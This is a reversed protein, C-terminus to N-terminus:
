ARSDGPYVPIYMRFATGHGVASEIEVRGKHRDIAKKVVALGLGTGRAKTTFFPTFIKEIVDPAIGSGTDSVSVRAYGGSLASEVTLEGGEPMVELANGLLNRIAQKMEEADISVEPNEQAYYTVVKVTEPVPYAAMIDELYDNIRVPKLILERTRAFGLIENIIGNAQQIESEIISLHKSIKADVEGRANLKAKIFYASNNIVALPNRIEHSVVSSMQGIAALREKKILEEHASKLERTRAEVRSELSRNLNELESKASLLEIRKRHISESMQLFSQALDGIEDDPMRLTPLSEFEGDGLMIAAERLTRIPRTLILSFVYGVAFIGLVLGALLHLTKEMMEDAPRYIIAVPKQIYVTWGLDKVGAFAGLVQTGDALRIEKGGSQGPYRILVDSVERPMKSEPAFVQSMDSHAVLFGDRAVIAAEVGSAAPFGTKLISSLGNLSLKVLIAGKAKGTANDIVQVGLTITPYQRMFRELSGMYEGNKMTEAFAPEQAFSRLEPEQVFRDARATENGASDVVSMELFAAHIQMLRNLGAKKQALGDGQFDPLRVADFLVNRFSSVYTYATDSMGAALSQQDGLAAQKLTRRSLSLMYYGVLMLPILSVALLILLLKTFLKGRKRNM